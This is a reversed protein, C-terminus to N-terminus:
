PWPTGRARGRSRIEIPQKTFPNVGKRTPGPEFMEASFDVGDLWAILWSRLTRGTNTFGQAGALTVIPGDDSRCDLCSWNACGWDCVPLLQAPWRPDCSLKV